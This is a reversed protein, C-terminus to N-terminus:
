NEELTYGAYIFGLDKELDNLKLFEM